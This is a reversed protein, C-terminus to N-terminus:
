VYETSAMNTGAGVALGGQWGIAGVRNLKGLALVAMSSGGISPAHVSGESVRKVM